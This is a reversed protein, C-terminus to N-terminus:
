TTKFGFFSLPGVFFINRDKKIENPDPMYYHYIIEEIKLFTIPPGDIPDGM